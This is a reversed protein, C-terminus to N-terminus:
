SFFARSQETGSRKPSQRQENSPHRIKTQRAWPAIGNIWIAVRCRAYLRLGVTAADDGARHFPTAARLIRAKFFAALWHDM